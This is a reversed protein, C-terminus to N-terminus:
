LEILTKRIANALDSSTWGSSLNVMWNFREEQSATITYGNFQLFSNLTILATRKNGEVFYQGEAIGHTLVAALLAIDANEDYSGYNAPRALASELGGVDRVQDRAQESTCKMARAYARLVQRFSLFLLPPAQEPM